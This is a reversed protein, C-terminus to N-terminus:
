LASGTDLLGQCKNSSLKMKIMNTVSALIQPLFRTEAQGQKHILKSTPQHDATNQKSQKPESPDISQPGPASSAGYDRNGAHYVNKHCKHAPPEITHAAQIYSDNFHSKNPTVIKPYKIENPNNDIFQPTIGM